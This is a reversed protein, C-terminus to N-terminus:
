LNKTNPTPGSPIADCLVEVYDLTELVANLYAYDSDLEVEKKRKEYPNASNFLVVTSM